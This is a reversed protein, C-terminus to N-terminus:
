IGLYSSLRDQEWEKKLVDRWLKETVCLAVSAMRGLIVFRTGDVPKPNIWHQRYVFGKWLAFRSRQVMLERAERLTLLLANEIGDITKM